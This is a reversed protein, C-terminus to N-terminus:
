PGASANRTSVVQYNQPLNRPKYDSRDRLRTIVAEHLKAGEPIRRLDFVPFYVRGIQLQRWFSTKPVKRPLFEVFAWGANMSNNIEALPDPGIYRKHRKEAEDRALDAAAADGIPTGHTLLRFVEENGLVGHACAERYLWELPIKALGSRDDPHGGGVDGHCGTFWVEEFDQATKEYSRTSHSWEEYDQDPEWLSPQFYTRREDIAVAHRVVKVRDNRNTYAKQTTTLWPFGSKSDFVSAVTDWLGLFAIRIGAGGLVKQFHSIEAAFDKSGPQGLRGYARWAYRVLQLQEPRVLGFIRLFGALLRATYAGRSFGFIYIRDGYDFNRVLFEYAQMVNDDIGAGTALGLVIRTKSKFWQWWGSLGFTGVGPQYFVLQQQSRELSGYLRLVNTRDGSIQNSTGDLLIVINKAM